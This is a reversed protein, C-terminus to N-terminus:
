NLSLLFPSPAYVFILVLYFASFISPFSIATVLLVQTFLTLRVTNTSYYYQRSIQLKTPIHKLKICMHLRYNKQGVFFGVTIDVNIHLKSLALALNRYITNSFSGFRVLGFFFHGVFHNLLVYFRFVAELYMGCIDCLYLSIQSQRHIISRIRYFFQFLRPFMRCWFLYFCDFICKTIKCHYLVKSVISYKKCLRKNM